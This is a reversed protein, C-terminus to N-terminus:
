ENVTNNDDVTVPEADQREKKESNKYAEKIKKMVDQNPILVMSLNRGEQKPKMEVLAIDKLEEVVRELIKHGYETHAMERGRFMVFARVKSGSEIFERVHKTKFQFDHADIKPRYRMEKM